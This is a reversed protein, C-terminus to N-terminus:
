GRPQRWDDRGRGFKEAAFYQEKGAEADSPLGAPVGSLIALATGWFGCEKEPPSKRWAAIDQPTQTHLAQFQTPLSVKVVLSAHTASSDLIPLSGEFGVLSIDASKLFARGLFVDRDGDEGM